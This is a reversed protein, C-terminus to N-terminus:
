VKELADRSEKGAKGNLFVNKRGSSRMLGECEEPKKTWAARTRKETQIKKKQILTSDRGRTELSSFKLDSTMRTKADKNIRKRRLSGV